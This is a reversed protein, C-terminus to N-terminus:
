AVFIMFIIMCTLTSYTVNTEKSVLEQKKTKLPLVHCINSSFNTGINKEWIYQINSPQTYLLGM